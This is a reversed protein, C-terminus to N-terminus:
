LPHHRDYQVCCVVRLGQGRYEDAMLYQPFHGPFVAICMTTSPLSNALTDEREDAVFSTFPVYAVMWYM